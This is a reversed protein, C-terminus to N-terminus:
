QPVAVFDLALKVEDETGLQMIQIPGIGYASMLVQTTATGTLADAGLTATVDWTVPLTTDRVTLDGAIQFSVPEDMRPDDPMGLIETAVFRATPFELSGLARETLFRDRRDSDSALQSVDVEIAEVRSASPNATDVTVQGSIGSTRGVAVAFRNDEFFTEGVEYRAESRAPDIVYVTAGAPAEAEAPEEATAATEEMPAAIEAPAEEEAVLAPPAPDAAEPEAAPACAGLSAALLTVTLLRAISM